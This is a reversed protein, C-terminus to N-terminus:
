LTIISLLQELPEVYGANSGREKHSQAFAVIDPVWLLTEASPSTFLVQTQGIAGTRRLNKVTRQDRARQGQHRREEAIILAPRPSTTGRHMAELLTELCAERAFEDSGKVDEIPSKVALLLAEREDSEALYECFERIKHAQGSAHAENTHWYTGGM